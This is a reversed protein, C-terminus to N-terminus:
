VHARGINTIAYGGTTQNSVVYMKPQNLPAIIQRIASNTGNVVLVMNRAEDSVGNLNTLTYDANSMTVTIVGAVSQEILDWNTNTTTGWYDSQEGAGIKQIKLSTTFTSAM